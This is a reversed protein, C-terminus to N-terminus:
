LLTVILLKHARMTEHGNDQPQGAASSRALGGGTALLRHARMLEQDNGQQHRGTTSPRGRRRTGRLRDSRRDVSDEGPERRALFDRLEHYGPEASVVYREVIGGELDRGAPDVRELHATDDDGDARGVVDGGFEVRELPAGLQRQEDRCVEFPASRHADHARRCERHDHGGARGTVLAIRIRDAADGCPLAAGDADVHIERGIGVDVVIRKIGDDVNAREALIRTGDRAQHPRVHTTQLVVAHQGGQLVERAVAIGVGVRVDPQGRNPDVVRSEIRDLQHWKAGAESDGAISVPTSRSESLNLPSTTVSASCIPAITALYPAPSAATRAKSAPDSRSSMGASGSEAIPDISVARWVARMLGARSSAETRRTRSILRPSPSKSRRVTASSEIGSITPEFANWSAASSIAWRESVSTRSVAPVTARRRLAGLRMASM